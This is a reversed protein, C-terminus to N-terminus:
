QELVGRPDVDVIPAKSREVRNQEHKDKAEEAQAVTWELRRRSLPTLGFERELMRIEKAVNLSGTNWFRNVLMLLRYLAPEDGRLFEVSMPSSWIVKWYEKAMAHWEEGDPLKPLKPAKTRPLNEAPLIARTSSKNRRQRVAPDKPLPGPM